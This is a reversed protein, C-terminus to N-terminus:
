KLRAMNAPKDRSGSKLNLNLRQKIQQLKVIMGHMGACSTVHGPNLHSLLLLAHIFCGVIALM